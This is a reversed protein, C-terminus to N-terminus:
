MPSTTPLPAREGYLARCRRGARRARARFGPGADPFRSAFLGADRKRRGRRGNLEPPFVGSEKKVMRRRPGGTAGVRARYGEANRNPLTAAVMGWPVDASSCSSPAGRRRSPSEQHRIQELSPKPPGWRKCSIGAAGALDKLTGEPPNVRDAKALEPLVVNDGAGPREM